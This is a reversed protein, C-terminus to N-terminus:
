TNRVRQALEWGVGGEASAPQDIWADMLWATTAEQLAHNARPDHKKKEDAETKRQKRAQKKKEDLEAAAADAKAKAAAAEAKARAAEAEIHYPTPKLTRAM